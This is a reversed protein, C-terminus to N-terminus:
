APHCTSAAMCRDSMVSGIAISPSTYLESPSTKLGLVRRPMSFPKAASTRSPTPPAHKKARAPPANVKAPCRVNPMAM